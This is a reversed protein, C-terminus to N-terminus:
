ADRELSENAVLSHLSSPWAEEAYRSAVQQRLDGLRRWRCGTIGRKRAWRTDAEDRPELVWRYSGYDRTRFCFREDHTIYTGAEQRRVKVPPPLPARRSM